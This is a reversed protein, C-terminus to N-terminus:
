DHYNQVAREAVPLVRYSIIQAVLAVIDGHQRQRWASRWIPMFERGSRNLVGEGLRTTEAVVSAFLTDGGIMRTHYAVRAVAESVYRALTAPSNQSNIDAVDRAVLASALAELKDFGLPSGIRDSDQVCKLFYATGLGMFVPVQEVKCTDLNAFGFAPWMGGIRFHLDLPYDAPVPLGNEDLLAGWYYNGNEGINRNRASACVFNTRRGDSTECEVIPKGFLNNIM